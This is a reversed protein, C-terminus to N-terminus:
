EIRSGTISAWHHGFLVFRNTPVYDVDDRLRHSPTVAAPDLQFIRRALIRSYFVYGFFYGVFCLATVLASM